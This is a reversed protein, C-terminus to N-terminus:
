SDVMSIYGITALKFTSVLMGDLHPLDSERFNICTGYGGIQQYLFIRLDRAMNSANANQEMQRQVFEGALQHGNRDPSGFYVRPGNWATVVDDEPEDSSKATADVRARICMMIAEREQYMHLMQIKFNMQRNTCRYDRKSQPHMAEGLGTHYNDMTSLRCIIDTLHSLSHFKPYNTSIGDFTKAM